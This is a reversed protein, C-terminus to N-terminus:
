DNLMRREVMTAIAASHEEGWACLPALTRALSMGFPTLAYDVRPPIEKYDTRDVVGDAQMEKLQQILMKNSVGRLQRKLEGYRLTGHARRRRDKFPGRTM